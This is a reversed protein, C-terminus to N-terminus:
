EAYTPQASVWDDGYHITIETGSPINRLAYLRDGRMVANPRDAHNLYRLTGSGRIGILEDGEEIWLVYKGNRRTRTGEFTGLLEHRRVHRSAFVGLGHIPSRGLEFVKDMTASLFIVAVGGLDLGLGAHSGIKAM